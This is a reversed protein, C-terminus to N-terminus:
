IFQGGNSKFVKEVEKITDQNGAVLLYEQAINYNITREPLMKLVHDLLAINSYYSLGEIIGLGEVTINLGLQKSLWTSPYDVKYVEYSKMTHRNLKQFLQHLVKKLWIEDEHYLELLFEGKNERDWEIYFKVSQHERILDNIFLLQSPYCESFNLIGVSVGQPKRNFLREIGISPKPFLWASGGTKSKGIMVAVNLTNNQYSSVESSQGTTLSMTQLKSLADSSYSTPTMEVKPAQPTHQNTQNSENSTFSPNKNLSTSLRKGKNQNQYNPRKISEISPTGNEHQFTERNKNRDNANMEENQNLIQGVMEKMFDSM